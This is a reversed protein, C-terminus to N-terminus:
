GFLRQGVYEGEATGAPVAFLASGVHRIYENLLDGRLNNQIDIFQQPDRQFCIFFLGASLQGLANNGEVFNYGRRLMRTGNNMEPHALRVHSDVDIALSGDENKAAFVPDTFELGGSLPAGEGKDRGIVRQQEALSARDWSEITMMIKRTVMYSGGAMWAPTADDPVWVQEELAATEDAMVNATGDKFGFLNRPTPTTRDTSATKGFGLQTWRVRVTGFGIRSLNRIAHMAVQPDDACAQICLDGDSIPDELLDFAFLPLKKLEAPRRDAIGLRKGKEGTFLSPGFGFTVTLAHAGMDQAEGTDDPPLLVPGDVAGDETVELGRTLREAAETWAKLLEVLDERTTTDRVDFAAFYLHEQVPTTIGAQHEGHFPHVVTAPDVVAPMAEDVSAHGAVFGVAAGAVGTGALGLVGRRSWRGFRPAGAAGDQQSRASGQGSQETM